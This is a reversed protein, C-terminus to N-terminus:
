WPNGQVICAHTLLGGDLRHWIARADELSDAPVFLASGSGTMHAPRGAADALRRVWQAIAPYRRCAPAFLDNRLWSTWESPNVGGLHGPDFPALADTPDEDFTRYVEATSAHIPPTVLLAAFPQIAVPAIREGRGRMRAAPPGLFLPVDSGLDKGIASLEATTFGANWLQNLAQLTVAADASGGGLGAGVAIHKTLEIDAGGKAGHARLAKAARLVLNDEDPGAAESPCRLTLRGDPRATVTLEDYVSIKAVISDLPHFGDSGVPGVHLTLNLKAPARALLGGDPLATFKPEPPRLGAIDNLGASHDMM